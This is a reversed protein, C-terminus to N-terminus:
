ENLASSTHFSPLPPRCRGAPVSQPPLASTLAQRSRALALPPYPFPSPSLSLSLFATENRAAISRHRGACWWWRVWSIRAAASVVLTCHGRFPDIHRSPPTSDPSPPFPASHKLFPSPPLSPFPSPRPRVAYASSLFSDKTCM